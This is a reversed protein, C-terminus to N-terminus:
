SGSTTAACRPPERLPLRRARQRRGPAPLRVADRARDERAPEERERRAPPSPRRSARRGARAAPTATTARRHRRPPGPRLSRTACTAVTSGSSGGSRRCSRRPATSAGTGTPGAGGPDGRRLDEATAARSRPGARASRRRRRPRRQQRGRGPRAGRRLRRGPPPGAARADDPQVGRARGAPGASGADALLRRLVWGQACLPYPFSRTPRSRSAARSTSRPSRRACRGRPRSRSRRHVPGAPPRRPDVGGRRHGGRGAPRADRAIARAALAADIREHDTIAIVDLETSREVHDLIEVIGATGDSALTHIHLDARGLQATM